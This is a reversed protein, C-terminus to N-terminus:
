VPKLEAELRACFDAFSEPGDLETVSEALLGHEVANFRTSATDKPWTSRRANQRNAETRARTRSAHINGSV